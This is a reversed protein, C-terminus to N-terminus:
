FSSDFAISEIRVQKEGLKKSKIQKCLKEAEDRTVKASNKRDTTVRLGKPLVNNNGGFAVYRPKNDFILSVTYLDKM